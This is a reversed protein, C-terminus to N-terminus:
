KKDKLLADISKIMEVWEPGTPYGRSRQQWHVLDLAARLAKNEDLAAQTCAWPINLRVNEQMVQENMQRAAQVVAYSAEVQERLREVEAVLPAVKANALEAIRERDEHMVEISTAQFDELQFFSM